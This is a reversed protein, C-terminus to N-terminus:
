SCGVPCGANIYPIFIKHVGTETTPTPTPTATTTPESTSTPTVTFTPTDTPHPPTVTPTFTPTEAPPETATPSPTASPPILTPTATMTTTRSPTPTRTITPTPTTTPTNPLFPFWRGDDSYTTGDLARYEARVVAGTFVKVKLGDSGTRFCEDCFGILSGRDLIYRGPLSDDVFLNVDVFGGSPDNSTVRVPANFRTSLPGNYRALDFVTLRMVDTLTYYVEKDMTVGATLTATATPTASATASPSITVTPTRTATPSATFTPPRTPTETPTPTPTLTPTPTRTSTYSPTPTPSLTATQTPTATWTATAPETTLTPTLTPAPPTASPSPTWTASSTASPTVTPTDTANTASRLCYEGTFNVVLSSQAPPLAVTRTAGLNGKVAIMTYAGAGVTVSGILYLGNELSTASYNTGFIAVQAGEIGIGACNQVIGQILFPPPTASSATVTITPAITPAGPTTTQSATPTASPTPTRSPTPTLTPPSTGTTTPSVAPTTTAVIYNLKLQPSSTGNPPGVDWGFLNIDSFASDTPGDIRFVAHQKAALQNQLAAVAAPSFFLRNPRATALDARRLSPTLTALTAAGIVDSFTMTYGIQKSGMDVLDVMWEGGDTVLSSNKGTITLEANVLVAHAPLSYNFQVFGLYVPSAIDNYGVYINDITDSLNVTSNTPGTVYGLKPATVNPALFTPVPTIVIQQAGSPFTPTVTPTFTPPGVPTTAIPTFGGGGQPQWVASTQLLTGGVTTYSIRIQDGLNDVRLQGSGCDSICFSLNPYLTNGKTRFRGSSGTTEQLRVSIGTSNANSKAFVTVEDLGQSTNAGRDLVEIQATESGVYGAKDLRLTSGIEWEQEQIKTFTNAIRLMFRTTYPSAVAPLSDTAPAWPISILGMSPQYFGELRPNQLAGFSNLTEIRYEINPVEPLYWFNIYILNTGDPFEPREKYAGLPESSVWIFHDTGGIGSSRTPLPATAALTPAVATQTAPTAQDPGAWASPLGGLLVILALGTASAVLSLWLPSRKM